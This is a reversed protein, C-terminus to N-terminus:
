FCMDRILCKWGVEFLDDTTSTQNKNSGANAINMELFFFDVVLQLQDKSPSKFRGKPSEKAISIVQLLM